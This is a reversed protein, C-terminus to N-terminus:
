SRHSGFRTMTAPLLTSSPRGIELRNAASSAWPGCSSSSSFPGASSRSSRRSTSSPGPATCPTPGCSARSRAVFWQSVSLIASVLGNAERADLLLLVIRAGILIQILGFGLIIVRRTMEAGSPSTTTVTSRHDTQVTAGGPTLAPEQTVVSQDVQEITM